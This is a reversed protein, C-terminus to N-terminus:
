AAQPDIRLKPSGQLSRSISVRALKPRGYNRGSTPLVGMMSDSRITATPTGSPLECGSKHRQAAKFTEAGMMKRAGCPWAHNADPMQCGM